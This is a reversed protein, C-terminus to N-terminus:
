FLTAMRVACPQKERRLEKFVHDLSGNRCIARVWLPYGTHKSSSEQKIDFYHCVDCLMLLVSHWNINFQFQFFRFFLVDRLLETIAMCCTQTYFGATSHHFNSGNSVSKFSILIIGGLWKKELYQCAASSATSDLASVPELITSKLCWFVYTTSNTPQM